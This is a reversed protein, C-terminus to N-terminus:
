LSVVTLGLSGTACRGGRDCVRYGITTGGIALGAKYVIAGGQVYASGVSPGTVITLTAPDLDGDADVDNALVDVVTTTSLLVVRSDNATVPAHAAATSTTSPTSTTTSAPGDPAPEPTTTAPAGSGDGPAPTSPVITAGAAGRTTTPRGAVTSPTAGPVTSTSAVAGKTGIAARKGVLDTTHHLTTTPGAPDGGGPGDVRVPADQVRAAATEGLPAPATPMGAFAVATVAGAVALNAVAVPAADLLVGLARLQSLWGITGAAAHVRGLSAHLLARVVDPDFQSGACRVLEDRAAEASLPKKYSRTCTIVDYADAVAVIRGALSIDTGALKRPYGAGDWREHHEAAARGWEGLWPALSDVIEGGVAPHRKLIAWEDDDPRGPKALIQAPVALKGIDHLLCAWQLRDRDAPPLGLEEAIVDAYARVRETHGRTMREHRGLAGVLELLTEVADGRAADRGLRDLRAELKRPTGARLAVRFRSPARDPFVLALNCLVALPALRRTFRGTVTVASAGVVMVQVLWVITGARGAPRWLHPGVLWTLVWAVLAPVFLTLARVLAALGRRRPWSAATRERAGSTPGTPM